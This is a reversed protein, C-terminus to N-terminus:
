WLLPSDKWELVCAGRLDTRWLRVGAGALRALVEPHPHGYPNTRGVSVVALRPRACRLLISSTGSRSGHHAAQLVHLPPPIDPILRAEADSEADGTLLLRRGRMTELLVLSCANSAACPARGPHLVDFTTSNMRIHRGRELFVVPIGRDRATRIAFSFDGEFAAPVMLCGVPYEELLREGWKVHDLDPHTLILAQLQTVGKLTLQPLLCGSWSAKGTDILTFDGRDEVLVASGQGVDLFATRTRPPPTSLLYAALFVALAASLSKWLRAMDHRRRLSHWVIFAYFALVLAAAPYPQHSGWWFVRDFSAILGTVWRSLAEGIDAYLPCPALVLFPFFALLLSALPIVLPNLAVAGWTFIGFAYLIFPLLLMQAPVAAVVMRMGAPLRTRAFLIMAFSALYTLIFGPTFAYHPMLLANFPLSTGLTRLPDQPRHLLLGIYHLLGALCARLVPARFGCFSAYGLLFAVAIWAMTRPPLRLARLLLLLYALYLGVHLGSIALIHMIGGLKFHEFVEEDEAEGRAFFLARLTSGLEPRTRLYPEMRRYLLENLRLPAYLISSIVGTRLREVQSSSKVQLGFPAGDRLGHFPPDFRILHARARVRDGPSPAGGELTNAFLPVTGHDATSLLSRFGFETRTWPATLTGTVVPFPDKPVLILKEGKLLIGALLFLIWGAKKGRLCFALLFAAYFYLPLPRDLPFLAYALSFLIAGTM